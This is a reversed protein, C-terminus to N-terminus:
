VPPVSEIKLKFLSPLQAAEVKASIRSIDGINISIASDQQIRTNVCVRFERQYSFRKQKRFPIEETPITGHFVTDDYYSVLKAKAVYGQHKLADVLQNLFPVAPVVVAFRGFKFCREDITLQRGLEEIDKPSCEFQGNTCKYGTTYVAYLCFLHLYKHQDFAMSVPGALDKKSIDVGGVGPVNLKIVIDDPQWWVAVAETSDMRGDGNESEMKMFYGLTNLYLKGEMFQDAHSEEAFFKIFYWIIRSSM